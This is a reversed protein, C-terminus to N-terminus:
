WPVCATSYIHHMCSSLLSLITLEGYFDISQTQHHSELSCESCLIKQLGVFFIKRKDDFICRFQEKACHHSPVVLGERKTYLFRSDM